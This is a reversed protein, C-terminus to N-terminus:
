QLPAAAAARRSDESPPTQTLVAPPAIDRAGTVTCDTARGYREILNRISRCQVKWAQRSYGGGLVMVLPVRRQVATSVVLEDRAVLGEPTLALHALPDGALPDVGAQYFVLDPQSLTFVVPLHRRLLDLYTADDTGRELPVDLTARAKPHPYIDREHMDFTFVREDGALCAVTGNGQHVDLDMVLVRAVRNEAQLARIAVPMDAFICFGGGREPEAHHYGGGLNIALGHELALRAALLTGGTAYRFPRVLVPELLGPPLLAAPGFELYEAVARPSRLQQLYEPTHVRPLDAPAVCEPVYVDSPRVRGDAVLQTYIRAYKHIDFSHLREFGGFRIQYRESYVLCLRGNLPAGARPQRVARLSEPTFCGSTGVVMGILAALGLRGM